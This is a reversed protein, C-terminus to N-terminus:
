YRREYSSNLHHSLQYYEKIESNVVPEAHSFVSHKDEGNRIDIQTTTQPISYDGRIINFEPYDSNSVKKSRPQAHQYKKMYKITITLQM